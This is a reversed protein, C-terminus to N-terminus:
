QAYMYEGLFLIENNIDDRIFFVFPRNAKFVITEEIASTPAMIIVTAAAAETGEEDVNIYTKHVVSGIFTNLGGLGTFMPKFDAEDPEFAKIIGLQRLLGELQINYEIKFKPMSVSVRKYQLKEFVSEYDVHSGDTLAVYMSLGLAKKGSDDNLEKYNLRIMQVHSDGYYSFNGTQNMFDINKVAGDANTFEAARTYQKEFEQQWAANFYTANVLAALFDASSIVNTIKNNTNNSIWANITDVANRNNVEGSMANYYQSVKNAYNHAFGAGPVNETNLWISNAINLELGKKADYESILKKAYDNFEDLDGIDLAGLIEDKTNGGAGNAALALAMKVSLPSAMYNQDKPIKDMLRYEFAQKASSLNVTRGAEDWEVKLGLAQAVYRVPVFTRSDVLAAATDMVIKEGGIYMEDSGIVIKIIIGDKKIYAAQEGDDWDAEAGLARALVAIPVQTRYNIDIFPKADPFAMAAGNVKITLDNAAMSNVPVAILLLFVLIFLLMKKM